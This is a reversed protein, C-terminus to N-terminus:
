DHDAVRTRGYRSAAMSMPTRRCDLHKGGPDASAPSPSPDGQNRFDPDLAAQCKTESQRRNLTRRLVQVRRLDPVPDTDGSILRIFEIWARENDSIRWNKM